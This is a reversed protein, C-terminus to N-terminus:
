SSILNPDCGMLSLFLDCEDQGTNGRLQSMVSPYYLTLDDDIGSDIEQVTKEKHM